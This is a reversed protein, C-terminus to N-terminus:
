RDVPGRLVVVFEQVDSRAFIEPIQVTQWATSISSITCRCRLRARRYFSKPQPLSISLYSYVSQQDAQSLFGLDNAEFGPSRRQYSAGGRVVGNVKELRRPSHLEASRHASPITTSIRTPGSFCICPPDSRERSRAHRYREGQQVRAVLVGLVKRECVPSALRRRRGHCHPASFRRTSEDLHRIVQTLSSDLAARATGSTVPSGHSATSRRRSSSLRAM